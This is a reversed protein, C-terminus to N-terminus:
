TLFRFGNYTAGATLHLVQVRPVHCKDPLNLLQGTTHPPQQSTLFFNYTKGEGVPPMGPGGPVHVAVACPVGCIRQLDQPM